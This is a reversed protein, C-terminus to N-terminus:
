TTFNFEFYLVEGGELYIYLYNYSCSESETCEDPDPAYLYMAKVLKRATFYKLNEPVKAGKVYEDQLIYEWKLEEIFPYEMANDLHQKRLEKLTQGYDFKKADFKYQQCDGNHVEACADTKLKKLAHAYEKKNIPAAQVIAPLAFTVLSCILAKM